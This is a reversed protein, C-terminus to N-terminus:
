ANVLIAQERQQQHHLLELAGVLFSALSTASVNRM